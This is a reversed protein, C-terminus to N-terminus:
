SSLSRGVLHISSWTTKSTVKRKVLLSIVFWMIVEHRIKCMSFYLLSSTTEQSELIHSACKTSSCVVQFHIVNVFPMQLSCNSIHSYFLSVGVMSLPSGSISSFFFFFFWFSERNLNLFLILRRCIRGKFWFIFIM